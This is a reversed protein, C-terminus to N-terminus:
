VEATIVIMVIRSVIMEPFIPSFVLLTHNLLSLSIKPFARAFIPEPSIPPIGAVATNTLVDKFIFLPAVDFRDCPIAAILTSTIEKSRKLPHKVKNGILIM